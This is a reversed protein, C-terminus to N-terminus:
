FTVIKAVTRQHLPNFTSITAQVEVLPADGLYGAVANLHLLARYLAAQLLCTYPTM